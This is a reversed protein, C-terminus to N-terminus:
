SQSEGSRGSQSASPIITFKAPKPEDKKRKEQMEPSDIIEILKSLPVVASIGLGFYEVKSESSKKVSLDEQKVPYGGVLVGM